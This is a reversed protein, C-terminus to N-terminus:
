RWEGKLFEVDVTGSFPKNEEGYWAAFGKDLVGTALWPHRYWLADQWVTDSFGSWERRWYKNLSAKALVFDKVAVEAMFSVLASRHDQHTVTEVIRFNKGEKDFVPNQTIRKVSRLRKDIAPMWEPRNM